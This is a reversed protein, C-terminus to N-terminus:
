AAEQYAEFHDIAARCYDSVSAPRGRAAGFEAARRLIQIKRDEPVVFTIPAPRNGKATGDTM